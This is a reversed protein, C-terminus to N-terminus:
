EILSLSEVRTLPEVKIKNRIVAGMLIHCGEGITVHHDILAGVNIISAEGIDAYRSVVAKARVICGPAVKADKSVFATPHILVPIIYNNNKLLNHYKIRTYNDGLAVIATNFKKRLSAIDSMKGIVPKCLANNKNDDLFAIDDFGLCRALEEVETSFSGAGVILLSKM